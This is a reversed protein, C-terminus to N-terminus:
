MELEASIISKLQEIENDTNKYFGLLMSRLSQLQGFVLQLSSDTRIQEIDIPIPLDAPVSVSIDGYPRVMISGELYLGDPYHFNNIIYPYCYSFSYQEIVNETRQVRYISVEYLSATRTRIDANSILDLGISKISEYAANKPDFVATVNCLGAFRGFVIPDIEADANAGFSAILDESHGLRVAGVNIDTELDLQTEILDSYLEALLDREQRQRERDSNWNELALALSIGLFIFLFEFLGKSIASMIQERNIM